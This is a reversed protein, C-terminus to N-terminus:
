ADSPLAVGHAMIMERLLMFSYARLLWCEHCILSPQALRTSAVQHKLKKKKKKAHIGEM